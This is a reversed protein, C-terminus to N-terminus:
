LCARYNVCIACRALARAPLFARAVLLAAYVIVAYCCVQPFRMLTTSFRVSLLFMVTRSVASAGSSRKPPRTVSIAGHSRGGPTDGSQASTAKIAPATFVLGPRTEINAGIAPWGVM